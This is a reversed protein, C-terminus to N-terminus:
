CQMEQMRLNTAGEELKLALLKADEFSEAENDHWKRKGTQTALDGEAEKKYPGNHIYKSHGM